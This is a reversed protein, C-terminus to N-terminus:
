FKGAFEKMHYQIDPRDGVVYLLTGVGSRYKKVEAEDVMEEENIVIDGPTSRRKVDGFLKVLGEIYKESVRIRTFGDEVEITRKLFILRNGDELAIKYEKELADTVKKLADQTGTLIVDDVHVLLALTNSKDTWMTPAELCQVLDAKLLTGKLNAFWEAAGERQGPLVKGLLWETAIGLRQAVKKDLVVKVARPQACMLYADKIDLSMMKWGRLQSSAPILRLLSQGGAPAFVDLRSPDLWAFDRAVLRARRQCKEERWRWDYVMKTNLVTLEGADEADGLEKLVGMSVLRRVETKVAQADLEWLEEQSVEPPREQNEEETMEFKEEPFEMDNDGDELLQGEVVMRVRQIGAPQADGQSTTPSPLPTPRSALSSSQEELRPVKRPFMRMRKSPSGDEVPVEGAGHKPSAEVDTVFTKDEKVDELLEALLLDEDIVSKMSTSSSSSSSKPPDLAAKDGALGAQRQGDAGPRRAAECAEQAQRREEDRIAPGIDPPLAPAYSNAKM